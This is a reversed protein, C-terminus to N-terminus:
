QRFVVRDLHFAQSANFTAPTFTVTLVSYSAGVTSYAPMVLNMFAWRDSRTISASTSRYTSTVDNYTGGTFAATNNAYFYANNVQGYYVPILVNADTYYDVKLNYTGYSSSNAPRVAISAYYGSGSYIKTKSSTIGFTKNGSSGATTILCYAAGQTVFDGALSGNSIVRQITSNSPSWGELSKEFSASQVLSDKLEPYDLTPTGPKVCWSSGNPMLLSLSDKLRSMKVGYNFVHSSKGGGKSQIQGGYMNVSPNGPNAFTSVGSISPDLFASPIRGYEAQVGDIFFSSTPALTYAFGVPPVLLITLSFSTEGQTLQRIAHLRTWQYQDHQVVQVSTNSTKGNGSTSITYTGEAGRTYVSVVVDEGGVAPSPLDVTTSISAGAPSFPNYSLVGMSTGFKPGFSEAFTVLGYNNDATVLRGSSPNSTSTNITLAGGTATWTSTDTFTPNKIFNFVNKTEWFTDTSNYYYDTVPNVPAPAGDGSFFSQTTASESFTLGDIWVTPPFLGGSASWADPFYLSVKALPQGSDRTYQPAIASVSFQQSYGVYQKPFGTLYQDVVTAKANTASSFAVTIPTINAFTFITSLNTPTGVKKVTFSNTSITDVIAGVINYAAPSLGTITVAEGVTLNHGPATYTIVTGDSNKSAATITYNTESPNLNISNGDIYNVVNSYYSGDTDSYTKIQQDVSERNSFEIRPIARGFNPKESSAYGSFTYNQGPTVPFWDSTVYATGSSLVTLEGLCTGAYIATSYVTPDQAFSGNPSATWGGVGEEFSPNPLLNQRQGEVYVRVRRADEFELSYTAEAFQFLDFLATVAGSSKTLTIVITAYVSTSPSTIGNRGTDSKSTFEVWDTTVTKSTSATSSSILNGSADNWNIVVSLGVTSAITKAWGSFIYRTNGKIPIGYLTSSLGTGPLSITQTTSGSPLVWKGYGAKRYPYLRDYVPPVPASLAFGLDAASTEYKGSTLTGGNASWRGTSEEFSSDNYDLILNHGTVVESGLHTLASVYARISAATGKVGNIVNGAKYLARHYTDGLAPEYNFGLQLMYPYLLSNHITAQSSTKQLIDLEAKQKDYQFVYSKLVNTLDTVDWEGLSDGIANSSNLWARPIWRSILNFTNTEQVVIQSTDGCYIWNTGNFLWISYNVQANVDGANLDVYSNRFKNYTDGDLLEGDFPNDPTGSYTKILRWHTPAPDAPDATISNWYLSVAGYQFALGRINSSYYVYSVLREGYKSVGYLGSGYKAM